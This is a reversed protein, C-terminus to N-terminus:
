EVRIVRKQVCVPRENEENEKDIVADEGGEIDEHFYAM